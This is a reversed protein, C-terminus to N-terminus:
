IMLLCLLINESTNLWLNQRVALVLKYTSAVIFIVRKM